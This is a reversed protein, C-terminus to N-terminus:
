RVVFDRGPLPESSSWCVRNRGGRKARYLEADAREVLEQPNGGIWPKLSHCGVSISLSEGGCRLQEVASRLREGVAAAGELDTNPMLLVLEEGGYRAALDSPRRAIQLVLQSVERLIQDGAGHGHTDNYHKFHDIDAFLLSLSEGNRQALEWEHQTVADLRRRNALGTLSDISALQEYMVTLRRANVHTRVRARLIPGSIPRTIYDVAGLDIGYAEASESDNSTVFIVPINRTSEDAKLRRCVEHGDPDPMTVDLLILDPAPDANALELGKGGDTAFIVDFRDQLISILLRINLPTDDIVLVRGRVHAGNAMGSAASSGSVSTEISRVRAAGLDRPDVRSSDM